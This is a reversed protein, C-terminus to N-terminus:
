SAMYKKEEEALRNIRAASRLEDAWDRFEQFSILGNGSTDIMNWLKTAVEQTVGAKTSYGFFVFQTIEEASNLDNYTDFKDKIALMTVVTMYYDFKEKTLFGTKTVDMTDFLAGAKEETLVAWVTKDSKTMESIFQERDIVPKGKYSNLQFLKDIIQRREEDASLAGRDWMKLSM